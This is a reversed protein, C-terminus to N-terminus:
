QFFCADTTSKLGVIHHLILLIGTSVCDLAFNCNIFSLSLQTGTGIELLLRNPLVYGTSEDEARAVNDRWQFLAQLLFLFIISFFM